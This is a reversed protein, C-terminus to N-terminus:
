RGAGASNFALLAHRLEAITLLCHGIKVSCESRLFLTQAIAPPPEIPKRPMPQIYRRSAPIVFGPLGLSREPSVQPGM